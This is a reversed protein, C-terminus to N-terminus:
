GNRYAAEGRVGNGRSSRGILESTVYDCRGDKIRTTLKGDSFTGAGGEGFQVNSEPDFEGGNWFKEVDETRKDVDKGRELVIPSLGKEALVLAANKMRQNAFM